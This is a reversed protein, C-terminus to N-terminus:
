IGLKKAIFSYEERTITGSFSANALNLRMQDTVGSLPERRLQTQISTYLSKAATSLDNYSRIVEKEEEAEERDRDRASSGSSSRASSRASTKTYAALM